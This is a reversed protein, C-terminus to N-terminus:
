LNFHKLALKWNIRPITKGQGDFPTSPKSRNFEVQVAKNNISTQLYVGFDLSLADTVHGHIAMPLQWNFFETAVSYLVV